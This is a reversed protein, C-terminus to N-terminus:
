QVKGNTVGPLAHSTALCLCPMRLVQHPPSSHLSRLTEALQEEGKSAMHHANMRTTAMTLLGRTRPLGVLSYDLICKSPSLKCEFLTRHTWASLPGEFPKGVGALSIAVTSSCNVRSKNVHNRPLIAITM